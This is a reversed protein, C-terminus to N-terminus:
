PENQAPNKGWMDTSDCPYTDNWFKNEKSVLTKSAVQTLVRLGGQSNLEWITNWLISVSDNKTM